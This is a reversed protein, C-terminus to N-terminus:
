VAVIRHACRLCHTPGRRHRVNLQFEETMNYQVSRLIRNSDLRWREPDLEESASRTRGVSTSHACVSPTYMPKILVACVQKVAKEIEDRVEEAVVDVLFRYVGERCDECEGWEGVVAELLVKKASQSRSLDANPRFELIRTLETM